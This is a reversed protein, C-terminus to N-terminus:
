QGVLSQCKGYVFDCLVLMLFSLMFYYKSHFYHGIIVIFRVLIRIFHMIDVTVFSVAVLCSYIYPLLLYIFLGCLYIHFYFYNFRVVNVLWALISCIGAVPTQSQIFKLIDTVQYCSSSFLLPRLKFGEPWIQFACFLCFM